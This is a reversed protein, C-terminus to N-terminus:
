KTNLSALLTNSAHDTARALRVTPTPLNDRLGLLPKWDERAYRYM